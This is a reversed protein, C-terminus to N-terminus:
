GAVSYTGQPVGTVLFTRDATTSVKTDFPGFSAGLKAPRVRVAVVANALPKGDTTQITGAIRGTNTTPSTQSLAASMGSVRTVALWVLSRLTMNKLKPRGCGEGM